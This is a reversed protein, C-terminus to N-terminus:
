RQALAKQVYELDSRAQPYDGGAHAIARTIFLEAAAYERQFILVSGLGNLASADYPNAFLSTYFNREARDLLADRQPSRAAQIAAWHKLMYANKLHYGALNFIM